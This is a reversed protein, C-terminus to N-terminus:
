ATNQRRTTSFTCKGTRVRGATKLLSKSLMTFTCKVRKKKATQIAQGRHIRTQHRTTIPTNKMRHRWFRILCSAAPRRWLGMGRRRIINDIEADQRLQM